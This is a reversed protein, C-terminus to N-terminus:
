VAEVVHGLADIVVPAVPRLPINVRYRAHRREGTRILAGRAVM